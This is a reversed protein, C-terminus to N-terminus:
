LEKLFFLDMTSHVVGVPREIEMYGCKRYLHVAAELSHHTELYAKSFGARKMEQEVKEIMKYGLGQGKVSDALYLKQMEACNDFFEFPAFGVGGVVEKDKLLVFYKRNSESYYSSLNDLSKDYYATGPINLGAGELNKRIISAMDANHYDKIETFAYKM